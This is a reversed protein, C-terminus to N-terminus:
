QNRQKNAVSRAGIILAVGIVARYAAVNIIGESGGSQYAAMVAASRQKIISGNNAVMRGHWRYSPPSHRWAANIGHQNRREGGRAMEERRWVRQEGHHAVIGSASAAGHSLANICDSKRAGCSATVRAM